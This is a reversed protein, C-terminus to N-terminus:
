DGGVEGGAPTVLAWFTEPRISPALIRVSGDFFAAILGGPHTAQPVSGDADQPSPRHQFPPGRRSGTTQPPEGMTIPHVDSWGVDAFTARRFGGPKWYAAPGAHNYRFDDTRKGCYVYHESFAITNGTGDAFTAPLRPVGTVATANVPYSCVNALPDQWDPIPSALQVSPDTPCIYVPIRPIVFTGDRLFPKPQELFPLLFVHIGEGGEVLRLPDLIGTFQGDGSSAMNHTALVIQRLHNQCKMRAAADRVRQVAPLLRGILIAIIAIVVLLEVLTMGRRSAMHSEM